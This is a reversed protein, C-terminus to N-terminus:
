RRRPSKLKIRSQTFDHERERVVFVPCDAQRVVREATSGMFVHSLGTRGHTSLIIVDADLEKAASVIEVHPRGVRVASQSEISPDLNNELEALQKKSDELMKTEILGLDVTSVETMPLFPEVVHLLLLKAGFHEAFPIAYQLAKSSCDSFDVPVLIRKLYFEPSAALKETSKSTTGPLQAERAKLEVTVGGSKANPKIKM